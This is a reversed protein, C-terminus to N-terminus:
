TRVTRTHQSCLNPHIIILLGFAKGHNHACTKGRVQAGRKNYGMQQLGHTAVWKNCDMQQLGKVGTVVRDYSSCDRRVLEFVWTAPLQKKGVTVAAYWQQSTVRSNVRTTVM